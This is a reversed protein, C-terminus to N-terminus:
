ADTIISVGLLDLGKAVGLYGHTVFATTGAKATRDREFLLKGGINVQEGYTVPASGDAWLLGGKVFMGGARDAGANATPVKSSSFVDVGFIQGRYGNGRIPLANAADQSWQVSGGSASAFSQRLDALQQPHLLAMAQGAGIAGQSNVELFGLATLFNAVTMDVGTSGATTSFGDVVDAILSTLTMAGSIVADMAFAQPNILNQADTLMALDSAEYSKSYRAVAVTTSGDALATNAVLSGDGTQALLDYGMLGIHPVKITSSGRGSIDGVYLLAPHNPLANRDSILLLYEQGLVEAVRLDGIGAYVVENAM